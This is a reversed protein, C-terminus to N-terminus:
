SGGSQAQSVGSSASPAQTPASLIATTSQQTADATSTDSVASGATTSDASVAASSTAAVEQLNNTGLAFEATLTSAAVVSAGVIGLTLLRVKRRLLEGNSPVNSNRSM